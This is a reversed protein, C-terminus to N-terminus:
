ANSHGALQKESFLGVCQKERCEHRLAIQDRSRHPRDGFRHVNADHAVDQSLGAPSEPRLRPSPRRLWGHSCRHRPRLHRNLNRHLRRRPGPPWRHPQTRPCARPRHPTRLRGSVSCCCRTAAASKRPKTRTGSTAFIHAAARRIPLPLREPRCTRRARCTSCATPHRRCRAQPPRCPPM